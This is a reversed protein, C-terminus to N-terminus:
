WTLYRKGFPCEPLSQFGTRGSDPTHYGVPQIMLHCSLGDRELAEKMLRLTELSIYPDFKCNLGIIDAGVLLFFVCVTSKCRYARYNAQSFLERERSKLVPKITLLGRLFSRLFNWVSSTDSSLVPYHKHNTSQGSLLSHSPIEM